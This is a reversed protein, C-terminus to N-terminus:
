KNNSGETKKEQNSYSLTTLHTLVQGYTCQHCQWLLTKGLFVVYHGRDPSSGLGRSRSVLVSVMLDGRRGCFM